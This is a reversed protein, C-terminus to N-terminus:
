KQTVMKMRCRILFDNAWEYDPREPLKSAEHAEDFQKHLSLRWENVEDWSLEGNRIAILKDRHKGVEVPVHGEQLITIGSALLRMLHM